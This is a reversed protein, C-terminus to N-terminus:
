HVTRNRKTRAIARARGLAQALREDRQVLVDFIDDLRSLTENGNVLFCIRAAYESVVEYYPDSAHHVACAEAIVAFLDTIETSAEAGRAIFFCRDIATQAVVESRGALAFHAALKLYRLEIEIDSVPENVGIALIRAVNNIARESPISAYAHEFLGAHM